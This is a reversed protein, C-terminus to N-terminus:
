AAKNSLNVCVNPGKLELTVPVTRRYPLSTSWYTTFDAVWFNSGVV